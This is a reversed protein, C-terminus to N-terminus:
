LITEEENNIQEEKQQQLKKNRKNNMESIDKKVDYLFPFIFFLIANFGLFYGVNVMILRFMMPWSYAPLKTTIIFSLGFYTGVLLGIVFIIISIVRAPLSPDLEKYDNVYMITRMIISKKDKIAKFALYTAVVAILLHFFCYVLSLVSSWDEYVVVYIIGYIFSFAAFLAFSGCIIASLYLIVMIKKNM